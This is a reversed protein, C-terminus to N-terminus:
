EKNKNSKLSNTIRKIKLPKKTKKGLWSQWILKRNKKITQISRLKSKGYIGSTLTGLSFVILQIKGEFLFGFFSLISFILLLLTISIGILYKQKAEKIKLIVIQELTWEDDMKLLIEIAKENTLDINKLRLLFEDDKLINTKRLELYDQVINIISEKM